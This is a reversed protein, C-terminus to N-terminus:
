SERGKDNKVGLMNNAILQVRKIIEKSNNQENIYQNINEKFKRMSIEDKRNALFVIGNNTLFYMNDSIKVILYKYKYSYHIIRYRM